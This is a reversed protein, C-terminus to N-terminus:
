RRTVTLNGSFTQIRLSSSGDGYTGRISRPGRNDDRIPGESKIPFDIRIRGSFTHTELEFGPQEPLSLQIDGSHSEIEYRGGKTLNTQLDLDGDLSRILAREGSWGAIRVDGNVTNFDLSRATLTQAQLDGNVTSVSLQLDAGANNLTVDGSVSKVFALRPTGDLSLNGSVGQVRVEGKVNTVRIDGSVTRLEVSADGPVKIDFEVDVGRGDRGGAYEVRLEVRNGSAYAEVTSDGLRQKAQEANPGWAHKLAQVEIQDNGGPSVQINGAVNTLLLAANRGVKFARSFPETSEVWGEPFRRRPQKAREEERAKQRPDRPPVPPVPPVPLQGALKGLAHLKFDDALLKMEDFKMEKELLKMEKEFDKTSEELEKTFDKLVQEKLLSKPVPVPAPVPVPVPGPASPPAPANPATPAIPAIPAVPAPAQRAPAPEPSQAFAFLLTFIATSIM